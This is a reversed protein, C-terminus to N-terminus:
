EEPTTDKAMLLADEVGQYYRRDLGAERFGARRYFEIAPANTARVQLRIVGVGATRATVELWAVLGSGIGRRRYKPAVAFLDLQAEDDGYRMIAFGILATEDTVVVVNTARDLISRRVREPTWLWRLRQEICDRSLAAIAPADRTLALRVEYQALM